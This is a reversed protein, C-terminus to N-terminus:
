LLDQIRLGAFSAPFPDLLDGVADMEFEIVKNYRSGDQESVADVYLVSVDNSSLSGERIRKQLRLLMSESHTEIFFQRGPHERFESIFIDMLDAQMKPHLHLEPEEVFLAGTKGVLTNLIPFVHGIGTGVEDFELLTGTFTDVISIKEVLSEAEQIYKSQIALGFRGETLTELLKNIAELKTTKSEYSGADYEQQSMPTIELDEPVPRVPAIHDLGGFWEKASTGFESAIRAIFSFATREEAPLELAKALYSNPENFAGWQIQNDWISPKEASLLELWNGNWRVPHGLLENFWQAGHEIAFELLRDLAEDEGGKPHVYELEGDPGFAFTINTPLAGSEEFVEEHIHITLYALYADDAAVDESFLTSVALVGPWKPSQLLDLTFGLGLITPAEEGRLQQFIVKQKDRMKIAPGDWVQNVDFLQDDPGLTQKLVRVARGISSKGSGNPGFILTIPALSARQFGKFGQFNQFAVARLM